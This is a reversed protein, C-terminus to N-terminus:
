EIFTRALRDSLPKTLYSLATREGTNVFVDAPMGPLLDLAGIVAPQDSAMRVRAVFYAGGTRDDILSDASIDVIEGDAEPVSEQDFATLRIRTDQGVRLKDIDSPNVRAEVILDEDSPVIDLIAAGPQIVAGPSFVALNFVRGSAPAVLTIREQREAAALYRPLVSALQAEVAALEASVAEDRQRKRSTQELELEGIQNRARAQTTRLSADVGRLREIEIRLANVRRKSILGKELLTTVAVIEDETIAIQRDNAARQEAIGAIEQELSTIRRETIAAESRRAHLATVFLQHQTAYSARWTEMLAERGVAMDGLDFPFSDADTLQAQLRARRIALDGLQSGFVDLDVETETGDLRLLPQGAEVYDGDSVHLARVIGGDLHQVTRKNGEVVLSAPAVVAGDLRAQMAWVGAGGVFVGLVLLGILIYPRIRPQDRHDTVLNYDELVLVDQRQTM